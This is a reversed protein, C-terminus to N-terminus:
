KTAGINFTVRSEDSEAWGYRIARARLTTTAHLTIPGTYLFWDTPAGADDFSYAISAGPEPANLTVEVPTTFSGGAPTFQPSPTHPQVGGPWFRQALDAEAIAGLDGTEEVWRQHARRMRELVSRYEENGALNTLEYPDTDTDYLEEVPKNSVYYWDAPPSLTGEDHLRFIEQMTALNDRFRVTQGYPKDPAYNRIYKFRKDRVARIRDSAEDHRDEAAFIYDPESKANHGLFPRGHMHDPADVGALALVTPALDVYSILQDDVSGPELASPSRIILPLHIGGDYVWRKDRPFGRGNDAFFFVITEDAVGDAELMALIEGVQGDMRAVNDYHRAFDQRVLQTDPYYPPVRVRAPDTDTNSTDGFLM